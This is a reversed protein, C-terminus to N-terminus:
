RDLYISGSINEGGIAKLVYYYSGTPVPGTSNGGRSQGTGDWFGAKGNEEGYNESQYVVNGWRNFIEIQVTKYKGL